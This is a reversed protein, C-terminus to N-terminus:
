PNSFIQEALLKNRAIAQYNDKEFDSNLFRRWRRGCCNYGNRATNM